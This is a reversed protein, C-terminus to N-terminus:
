TRVAEAVEAAEEAQVLWEPVPEPCGPDPDGDADEDPGEGGEACGSPGLVPPGAIAGMPAAPPAGVGDHANAKRRARKAAERAAVAGPWFPMTSTRAIVEVQRPVFGETGRDTEAIEYLQITCSEFLDDRMFQTPFIAAGGKKFPDGVLVDPRDLEAATLAIHGSAAAIRAAIDDSDLYLELFGCAWSNQNVYGVHLWRTTNGAPKDLTGPVIVYSWRVCLVGSAQEMCAKHAGGKKFLIQLIRIVSCRFLLLDGNDCIHEGVSRCVSDQLHPKPINGILVQEAHRHMRSRESWSDRLLSQYSYWRPKDAGHEALTRPEGAAKSIHEATKLVPARWDIRDMSFSEYVDSNGIVRTRGANQLNDVPPSYDRTLEEKLKDTAAESAAQKRRLEDCMKRYHRELHSRGEQYSMGAAQKQAVIAFESPRDLSLQGAPVIVALAHSATSGVPATTPVSSASARESARAAERPPCRALTKAHARQCYPAREAENMDAWKQATGRFVGGGYIGKKKGKTNDSVFINYGSNARGSKLDRHIRRAKRRKTEECPKRGPKGIRQSRKRKRGRKKPLVARQKGIGEIRRQRLQLMTGSINSFSEPTTNLSKIRAERQWLGHGNESKLTTTALEDSITVACAVATESYVGDAAHDEIFENSFISRLCPVPLPPEQAGLIDTFLRFTGVEHPVVLKLQVGTLLRFIMRSAISRIKLSHDIDQMARWHANDNLLRLCERGLAFEHRNSATEVIRYQRQKGRVCRAENQADWKESALHLRENMLRDMVSGVIAMVLVIPRPNSAVFKVTDGKMRKNFESWVVEKADIQFTESPGGSSPVIQSQVVVPQADDESEYGEAADALAPAPADHSSPSQPPAAGLWAYVVSLLGHTGALLAVLTNCLQAGKWKHRPFYPLMQPLLADGASDAVFDRIEADSEEGLPYFDIHSTDAIDAHFVAEYAHRAKATALAGARYEANAGIVKNIPLVVNLFAVRQEFAPDGM